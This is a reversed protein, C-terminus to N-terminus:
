FGARRHALLRGLLAPAAMVRPQLLRTHGAHRRRLDEELQGQNGTSARKHVQDVDPTPRDPLERQDGDDALDQFSM